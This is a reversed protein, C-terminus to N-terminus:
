PAPEVSPASSASCQVQLVQIREELSVVKEKLMHIELEKVGLLVLVQQPIQLQM